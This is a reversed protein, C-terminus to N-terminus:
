QIARLSDRIVKAPKYKALLSDIEERSKSEINALLEIKNEENIVSSILSVTTLTVEKDRLLTLLEPYRKICRASSIRRQAQSESYRLGQTCYSFLSSYGLELYLKREDIELLHSLLECLVENEKKRLLEVNRILERNSIEKLECM